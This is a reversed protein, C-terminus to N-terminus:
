SSSLPERESTVELVDGLVAEDSSDVSGVILGVVNLVLESSLPSSNGSNGSLVSSSSLWPDNNSVLYTQLKCSQDYKTSVLSM